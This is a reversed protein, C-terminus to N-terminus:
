AAGYPGGDSTALNVCRSLASHIRALGRYIKQISCDQEAAIKVVSAEAIYRQRILERDSDPLKEVCSQLAARRDDARGDQELRIAEEALVQLVAEPLLSVRGLKRRANLVEFYLIRSAWSYFSTGPEYSSYKSWMVVSADQLADDADSKNPMLTRAFCALRTVDNTYLRVFEHGPDDAPGDM